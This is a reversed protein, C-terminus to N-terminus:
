YILASGGKVSWQDSAWHLEGGLQHRFVRDRCAEFMNNLSDHDGLLQGVLANDCVRTIVTTIM